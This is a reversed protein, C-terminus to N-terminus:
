MITQTYDVYKVVILTPSSDYYYHIHSYVQIAM